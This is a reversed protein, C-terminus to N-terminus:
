VPLLEEEWIVKEVFRADSITDGTNKMYKPVYGMNGFCKM